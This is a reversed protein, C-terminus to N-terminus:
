INVDVSRGRTYESGAVPTYKLWCEDVRSFLKVGFLSLETRRLQSSNKKATRQATLFVIAANDVAASPTGLPRLAVFQYWCELVSQVHVYKFM